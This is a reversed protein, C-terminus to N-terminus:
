VGSEHAETDGVWFEVSTQRWIEWGGSSKRTQRERSRVDAEMREQILPEGVKTLWSKEM